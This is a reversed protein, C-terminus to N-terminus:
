DEICRCSHKLTGVADLEVFEFNGDDMLVLEYAWFTVGEEDSFSSTWFTTSIDKGFQEWETTQSSQPKRKFYGTPEACFGTSIDSYNPTILTSASWAGFKALSANDNFVVNLLNDWEGKSPIHYGSPCPGQAFEYIGSALPFNLVEGRSTLLETLTFYDRDIPGSNLMSPNPSNTTLWRDGGIQISKYEGEESPVLRDFICGRASSFCDGIYSDDFIITSRNLQPNSFHVFEVFCIPNYDIESTEFPVNYNFLLNGNLDTLQDGNCFVKFRGDINSATLQGSLVLKYTSLDEGGGLCIVETNRQGRILSESDNSCQEFKRELEFITMEVEKRGIKPFAVKGKIKPKMRAVIGCNAIEGSSGIGGEAYGGLFYDMKVEAAFALDDFMGIGIDAGFECGFGLEGGVKFLAEANGDFEFNPDATSISSSFEAKEFIVDMSASGSMEVQGGAFARFGIYPSGSITTAPINTPITFKWLKFKCELKGTPELVLKIELKLDKFGYKTVRDGSLGEKVVGLYIKTKLKADVGYLVGQVNCSVGGNSEEFETGGPINISVLTLDLDRSRQFEDPDIYFNLEDFADELGANETRVYTSDGLIDIGVIRKVFFRDVKLSEFESVLIKDEKFSEVVRDQNHFVLMNESISGLTEFVENPKLPIANASYDIVIEDVVNEDIVEMLDEKECQWGVVACLFLLIFNRLTKM